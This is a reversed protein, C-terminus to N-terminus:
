TILVEPEQLQSTQEKGQLHVLRESKQIKKKKNEFSNASHAPINKSSCPFPENGWHRSGSAAM